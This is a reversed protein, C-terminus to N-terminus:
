FLLQKVIRTSKIAEASKVALHLPTYGDDDQLNPNAGYAILYSVANEAGAYCAWHLPTSNVRDRANVDISKEIFYVITSPQNGQSAVHLMNLNFNNEAYVDAGHRQLFRVISLNGNFAALHLSTFGERGDSRLNIWKILKDKKELQSLKPMGM